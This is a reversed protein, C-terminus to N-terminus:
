LLIKIIFNILLFFHFFVIERNELFSSQIQENLSIMKIIGFDDGAEFVESDLIILLKFFFILLCDYFYEEFPILGVLRKVRVKLIQSIVIGKFEDFINKSFILQVVDLISFKFRLFLESFSDGFKEKRITFDEM